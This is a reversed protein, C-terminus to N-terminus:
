RSRTVSIFTIARNVVAVDWLPPAIVKIEAVRDLDREALHAVRVKERLLLHDRADRAAGADREVLLDHREAKRAARGGVLAGIQEEGIQLAELLDRVVGPRELHYVGALRM